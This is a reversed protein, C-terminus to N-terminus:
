RGQDINEELRAIISSFPQHLAKALKLGTGLTINKEGREIAGIYTRHLDCLDAFNEQSLGAEKRLQRM